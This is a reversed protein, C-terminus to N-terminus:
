SITGYFLKVGILFTFLAFGRKLKNVPIKHVWKAGVPAFLTSCVVIGLLAPLYVYGVSWEPLEPQRLGLLMYSVSSAVAIPLGCASSVAIANRIPVQFTVLFPVTMSGGGIGLIASLGGIVAGTIALLSTSLHSEGQGPNLAFAMKVSILLLFIAFIIKLVSMPMADAIVAGLISGLVITPGLRLVLPWLVAGLKHHASISALSTLVISALSTAIAMLMLRDSEISYTEFLWLLAPVLVSGGGIGLLGSLLGAIVGLVLCPIFIDFM